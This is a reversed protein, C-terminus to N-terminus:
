HLLELTTLHNIEILNLEEAKELNRKKVIKEWKEFRWDHTNENKAKKINIM